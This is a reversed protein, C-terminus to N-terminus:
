GIAGGAYPAGDVTVAGNERRIERTQGSLDTWKVRFRELAAPRLLLKGDRLELGLVERTWVRFFWGASGTYWTWGAAGERGRAACVDAPLVFPEAEYRAPDHNEPLLMRLLELGDEKRGLRLAAMALWVAAHTYQGGNERFGAGYGSLYGPSDEAGFPPDLLRVLGHTRDVLRRIAADVAAAAHERSAWPCFVAWSQAVSDIREEGGLPQGDETFARPYWRGNFSSEAALGAQRALSLVEPARADGLRDLLAAFRGACCSLFWGLWVSEGGVRDLGDNWDGSGMRPLGHPGFGRSRCCALAMAAHEMLLLSPVGLQFAKQETRRTDNPTLIPYSVKCSNNNMM